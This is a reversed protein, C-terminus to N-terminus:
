SAEFATDDGHDFFPKSPIGDQFSLPKGNIIICDRLPSDSHLNGDDPTSPCQARARSVREREFAQCVFQNQQVDVTIQGQSMEHVDGGGDDPYLISSDPDTMVFVQIM